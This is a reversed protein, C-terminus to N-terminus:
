IERWFIQDSAAQREFLWKRAALSRFFKSAPATEINLILNM